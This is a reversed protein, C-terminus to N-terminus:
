LCEKRTAVRAAAVKHRSAPTVTDVETKTETEIETETTTEKETETDTTTETETKIEITTETEAETEVEITPPSGMTGKLMEIETLCTLFDFSLFVLTVCNFDVFNTLLLNFLLYQNSEQLGTPCDDRCGGM